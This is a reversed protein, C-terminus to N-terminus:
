LVLCGQHPKRSFFKYERSFLHFALVNKKRCSIAGHIQPSVAPLKEVLIFRDHGNILATKFKNISTLYVFKKSFSGLIFAGEMPLQVTRM